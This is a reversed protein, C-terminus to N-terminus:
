PQLEEQPAAAAPAPAGPQAMGARDVPPAPLLRMADDNVEIRAKARLDALLKERRLDRDRKVIRARISDKVEDFTKAVAPSKSTVLLVHFGRETAVGPGITLPALGFAADLLAKPVAALRALEAPTADQPPERSLLGLSGLYPATAKDLSLRVVYDNWLAVLRAPNGESAARLEGAIKDAESQTALLMHSVEVQEPKHYLGANHDYYDKLDADRISEPKVADKGEGQLYRRVMTQRVAEVVEPDKELGRRQAEAVLVEFQVLKQLYDKRKQVSAFQSRVVPPEQQLRLELEGLTLVRDGIRAVVVAQQEASLQSSQAVQAARPVVEIRPNLKDAQAGPGAPHPREPKACAPLLTAFALLLLLLRM